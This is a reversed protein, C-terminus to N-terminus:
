FKSLILKAKDSKRTLAISVNEYLYKAIKKCSGIGDYTIVYCGKHESPKIENIGLKESLLKSVQKTCTYSSTLGIAPIEKGRKITTGIWGDGDFLGRLVHRVLGVDICEIWDINENGTKRPAINYKLLDKAMENSHFRLVYCDRYEVLNTKNGVIASFRELIYRDDKHLEICICKQSGVSERSRDKICGDAMLFGIMYAVEENEISKFIDHKLHMGRNGARTRVIDADIIIKRVANLGLRTEAMVDKYSLGLKYLDIINNKEEETIEIARGM